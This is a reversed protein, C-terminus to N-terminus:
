YKNDDKLFGIECLDDDIIIVKEMPHLPSECRELLLVNRKYYALHSYFLELDEESLYSKLNVFVFLAIKRYESCVDIYDCLHELLSESPAFVVNMARFIAVIDLDSFELTTPQRNSLDQIKEGIAALM